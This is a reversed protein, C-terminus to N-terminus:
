PRADEWEYVHIYSIFNMSTPLLQMSAPEETHCRGLTTHTQKTSLVVGHVREYHSVLFGLRYFLGRPIATRRGVGGRTRDKPASSSSFNVVLEGARPSAGRGARHRAHKPEAM